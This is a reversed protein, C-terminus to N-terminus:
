TFMCDVTYHLSDFGLESSGVIEVVIVLIGLVNVIYIILLSLLYVLHLQM